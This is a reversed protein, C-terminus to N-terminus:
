HILQTLCFWYLRASVEFFLMISITTIKLHTLIVVFRFVRGFQLVFINM